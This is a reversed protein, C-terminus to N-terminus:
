GNHEMGKKHTHIKIREFMQRAKKGDTARVAGVLEGRLHTLSDDEGQERINHMLRDIEEREAVSKGERDHYLQELDKDRTWDGM